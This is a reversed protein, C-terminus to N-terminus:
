ASLAQAGLALLQPATLSPIDATVTGAIRRFTENHRAKLYLGLQDAMNSEGKGHGILVIRGGAAIAAAIKEFFAYDEAGLRNDELRHDKQRLHHLFHHEGWPAVAHRGPDDSSVDVHYIRAEAHDIVAILSPAERHPGEASGLASLGARTLFHRLATVDATTVDKTHPKHAFLTEGAAKFM